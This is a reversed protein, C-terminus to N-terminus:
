DEKFAVPVSFFSIHRGMAIKREYQFRLAGQGTITRRIPFELTTSGDSSLAVSGLWRIENQNSEEVWKGSEDIALGGTDDLTYPAVRFEPPATIGLKDGLERPFLVETIQHEANSDPFDVTVRIRDLLVEAQASPTIGITSNASFLVWGVYAVLLLLIIGVVKLM